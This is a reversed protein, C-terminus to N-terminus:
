PSTPAYLAADRRLRVTVTARAPLAALAKSAYAADAVLEIRRGPHRAQVLDALERALQPRSPHKAGPRSPRYLRFLM